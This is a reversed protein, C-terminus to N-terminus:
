WTWAPTHHSLIRRLKRCLKSYSISVWDFERAKQIIVRWVKEGIRLWALVLKALGARTAEFLGLGYKVAIQLARELSIGAQPRFYRVLVRRRLGKPLNYGKAFAVTVDASSTILSQRKMKTNGTKPKRGESLPVLTQLVAGVLSYWNKCFICIEKLPLNEV